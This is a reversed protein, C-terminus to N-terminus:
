KQGTFILDQVVFVEHATQFTKPPYTPLFVASPTYHIELIGRVLVKHGECKRAIKALELNKGFDLAYQKGKAQLLLKTGLSGSKLIDILDLEITGQVEMVLSAAPPNGAAAKLSTVEIVQLLEAPPAYKKELIHPPQHWVTKLTGTVQIAKGKLDNALKVLDKDGHFDLGYFQGNINIYWQHYPGFFDGYQSYQLPGEARVHIPHQGATASPVVPLQGIIGEQPPTSGIPPATLGPAGFILGALGAV